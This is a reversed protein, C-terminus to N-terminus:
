TEVGDWDLEEGPGGKEADLDTLGWVLRRLKRFIRRKYVGSTPEDEMDFVIKRMTPWGRKRHDTWEQLTARRALEKMPIRDEDGQLRPLRTGHWGEYVNETFMRITRERLGPVGHFGAFWQGPGEEDEEEGPRGYADITEQIRRLFLEMGHHYGCDLGILYYLNHAESIPPMRDDDLPYERSNLEMHESARWVLHAAVRTWYEETDVARWVRKCTGMLKLLHRPKLHLGVQAWMDDSLSVSLSAPM